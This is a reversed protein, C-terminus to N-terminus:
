RRSTDIDSSGEGAEVLSILVEARALLRQAEAVLFDALVLRHDGRAPWQYNSVLPIDENPLKLPAEAPVHPIVSPRVSSPRVDAARPRIIGVKVDLRRNRATM